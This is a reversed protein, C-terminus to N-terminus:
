CKCVAFLLLGLYLLLPSNALGVSLFSPIILWLGVIATPKIRHEPLRRVYGGQMIAMVLGVFNSIQISAKM